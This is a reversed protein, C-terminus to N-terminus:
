GPVFRMHVIFAYVLITILAWTEKPDWGWYRGWSENAWIGGLFTGITLLYLGVILTMENIRSIEKVKATIRAKNEKTQFIMFILNLFGMFAGLFLFGYSATIIAVHITLWYSKLVPVLNTIEPNMWSLHAVYMILFTLVSTAALAIPSNKYFVLGALITAWGIFIMSEYGDSWPAHEAIYWRAALGFTHAIFTLLILAALIHVTWKMKVKPQLVKIFLIILMIFGFIGYPAFLRDFIGIKNYLIEHDRKAILSEYNPMFNKQYQKIGAMAMSADSYDGTKQGSILSQLYYDFAAVVFASDQKHVGHFPGQPTLWNSINNNPVPYIQLFGKNIGMYFVNVREDVTILDKEFKGRESPKKRYAEDIYAELKYRNGTPTSEFFDSFTARSDHNGIIDKLDDNIVKILSQKVWYSPNMMMGLLIRDSNMGNYSTKRSFKRVVQNSISNYPQFRGSHGQVLLTSLEDIQAQPIKDIICTSSQSSVVMPSLLVFALIVAAANKKKMLQRFRTKKSFLAFFMGIIMFAYGLYTVIMGFFDHNVSLVTGREDADYSSQFFRYGKYDLVHNMFIKYDMKVHATEDILIVDSSYSSPSNSAPYRELQFDRLMISFPLDIKESGYAMSLEKGDIMFDVPSSYGSGGFAHGKFVTEDQENNVKFHIADMGTRQDAAIVVLAAKPYYNKVVWSFDKYTYLNKITIEYLSDPSLNHEVGTMMNYHQVTDQFSFQPLANTSSINIDNKEAVDFGISKGRIKITQGSEISYSQFNQDTKVALELMPKGSGGEKIYVTANPTFDYTYLTYEKNNLQFDLSVEDNTVSSFQVKKKDLVQSDGDKIIVYTKDSQFTNSMQGERISMLGEYGIYRTIGAGLIILIFAIHFTFVAWKSTKWPKMKFANVVLNMFTIGIIVEFWIANYILAKSAPIGFDNEIFTAMGMAFALVVLLVAALEMSFIYKIINKM